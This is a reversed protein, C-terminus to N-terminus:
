VKCFIDTGFIAILFTLINYIVIIYCFLIIYLSIYVFTLNRQKCTRPSTGKDLRQQENVDSYDLQNEVSPCM